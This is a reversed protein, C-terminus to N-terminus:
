FMSVILQQNDLLEPRKLVAPTRSGCLTVIVLTPVETVIVAVPEPLVPVLLLKATVAGSRVAVLVFETVPVV